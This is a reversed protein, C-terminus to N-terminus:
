PSRPPRGTPGEALRALAEPLEAFGDIVADAGLERVPSRCIGYSVLVAPLGANRASLLDVHSDGVMVATERAADMRALTALLHGAAPKRESFSDGGSVTEFLRELNLAALITRSAAEPKNTCVALRWGAGRLDGLTEPVGPYPRTEATLRTGYIELFRAVLKERARRPPTGGAQWALGREVLKAVGDGVMTAVQAQALPAQSLEARLLNLSGALDALSDVLTGDLDILLTGM